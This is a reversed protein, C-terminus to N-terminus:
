AHEGFRGQVSALASKSWVTLRGPHTGPALDAVNLNSAEVVKVGPFNRFAREASNKKGLVFLVSVSTKRSRGRTSGKGARSRRSSARLVDAWLDINTLIKKAESSKAVQEIDDSMVIPVERDQKIQHGRAKVLEISTTAALASLTALRLEKKNIRKLNTRNPTPPFTLRGKVTNPAFAALNARPYRDGKVRPVRAMARGVGLSEATTRRGAMPDRGQPQFAASQIAVVARRILDLRVPGEFCGPLEVKGVSKGELDYVNVNKTL